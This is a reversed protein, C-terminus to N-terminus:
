GHVPGRTGHQLRQADIRADSLAEQVQRPVDSVPATEGTDLYAKALHLRDLRDGSLGTLAREDGQRVQALQEATLLREIEERFRQAEALSGFAPADVPADQLRRLADTVANAGTSAAEERLAVRSERLLGAADLAAGLRAQVQELRDLARELDEPQSLDLGHRAALARVDNALWQRELAANTAGIQLRALVEAPAIGTDQLSLELAARVAPRDLRDLAAQDVADRGYLGDASARDQLSISDPGLPSLHGVSALVENLGHELRPREQPEATAIRHEVARVTHTFERLLTDFSDQTDAMYIGGTPQIRDGRALIASARLLADSVDEFGARSAEVALERYTSGAEAIRQLARDLGPGVRLREPAGQGVARARQVEASNAGYTLVGRDLRRTAELRLGYREGHEVMAERFAEYSFHHGRRLYFMEGDQSRRNLVIHAHPHARDEHIAVLYDFHADEGQFFQECIGRAVEHVHEPRTGVPFAMLLHSTHGLKPTRETTWQATFRKALARIEAPTLVAQGDFTGRADFLSSSKTTLYTLQARLEASTRCGGNRIAKFIAPSHGRAARVMQARPGTLLSGRSRDSIGSSGGPVGRGRVRSWGDGFLDAAPALSPRRM